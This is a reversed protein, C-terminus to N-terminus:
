LLKFDKVIQNFYKQYLEVDKEEYIVMNLHIFETTSLMIDLFFEAGKNIEQQGFKVKSNYKIIQRVAPKVGMMLNDNALIVTKTTDKIQFAGLTYDKPGELTLIELYGADVTPKIKLINTIPIKNYDGSIEPFTKEWGEPYKIEYLDNVKLGVSVYKTPIKALATNTIGIGLNYMIEFANQPRGLFYRKKDKPNVYWAEGHKESQLIIRGSLKNALATNKKLIGKGLPNFWKEIETKDAFEDNDSDGSWISTGIATELDNSLGDQDADSDSTTLLGIPIESINKESIGLGLTKMLNFADAPRGLYYRNGDVPNVYWAEGNQEVQLYIKGSHISAANTSFPMLFSILLTLAAIVQIKKTKTM